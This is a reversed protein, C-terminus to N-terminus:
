IGTKKKLIKRHFNSHIHVDFTPSAAPRYEPLLRGSKYRVGCANCLTKPGLPGVRWQPTHRTECHSCKRQWLEENMSMSWMGRRGERKGRPKKNGLFGNCGQAAAAAAQKKMMPTEFEWSFNSVDLNSISISDNLFNPYLEIEDIPDQPVCLPSSTYSCSDSSSFDGEDDFTFVIEAM